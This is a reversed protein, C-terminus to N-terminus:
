GHKGKGEANAINLDIAPICVKPLMNQIKETVMQM